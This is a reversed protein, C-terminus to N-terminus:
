AVNKWLLKPAAYVSIKVAVDKENIVLKKGRPDTMVYGMQSIWRAITVKSAHTLEEVTGATQLFISEKGTDLYM